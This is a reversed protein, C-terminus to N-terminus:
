LMLAQHALFLPGFAPPEGDPTPAHLAPKAVIPAATVRVRRAPAPDDVPTHTATITASTTGVDCPTGYPQSCRHASAAPGRASVTAARDACAKASSSASATRESKACAGNDAAAVGAASM